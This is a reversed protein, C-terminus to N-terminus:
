NFLDDSDDGNTVNGSAVGEGSQGSSGNNLGDYGSSKKSGFEPFPDNDVDNSQPSNGGRSSYNADNYDNGPYGGYYRREYVRYSSFDVPDNNRSVFLFIGFLSEFFISLIGFLMARQPNYKRFVLFIMSVEFVIEAIGIFFKVYYLFINIVSSTSNIEYLFNLFANSYIIKQGEAVNFILNAMPKFNYAISFLFNVLSLICVVVGVNKIQLGWIVSKGILKGIIIFNLFPVFCMWKNKLRQRNSLVYLAICKFVYATLMFAGDVFLTIIYFITSDTLMSLNSFIM